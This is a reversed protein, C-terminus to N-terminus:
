GANDSDTAPELPFSESREGDRVPKLKFRGIGSAARHRYETSNRGSIRWGCSDTSFHSTAKRAQDARIPEMWCRQIEASVEDLTLKAIEAETDPVGSRRGAAV